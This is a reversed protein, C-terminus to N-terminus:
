HSVTSAAGPRGTPKTLLPSSGKAAAREAAKKQAKRQKELRKHEGVAWAAAGVIGAGNRLQAPVIASRLTLRPLFMHHSKSVGGGVVILDPWLLSEMESFYRQLNKSWEDWDLGLRARASEAAIIEGEVGDIEIHGLETNPVLHGQSILCTGIGTGLTTMLVVGDHGQAAGYKYEGYGAADADNLVFVDHGAYDRIIHRLNTGLWADDVNSATKVVGDQVVGPFTVGIAMKKSPSFRAICKAVTRAVADPTSPQPTPVRYREETFEGTRTDVPAAKIGTGGIDVGLAIHKTM